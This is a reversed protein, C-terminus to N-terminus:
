LSGHGGPTIAGTRDSFDVAFEGHDLPTEGIVQRLLGEHRGAQTVTLAVRVAAGDKSDVWPHDPIVFALSNGHDNLARQM